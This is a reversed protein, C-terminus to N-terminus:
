ALHLSLKQVDLRYIVHVPTLMSSGQREPPQDERYADCVLKGIGWKLPQLQGTYGIRAEPFVHTWGGEATKQAAVRMIPQDIGQGREIPLTKGNQFIHSYSLCAYTNQPICEVVSSFAM